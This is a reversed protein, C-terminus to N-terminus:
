RLGKESEAKFWNLIAPSSGSRAVVLEGQRVEVIWGEPRGGAEHRFSDGAYKVVQSSLVQSRITTRTSVGEIQFVISGKDWVYRGKNRESSQAVFWYRVETSHIGAVLKKVTVDLERVFTNQRNTSENDRDRSTNGKSISQKEAVDIVISGRVLTAPIDLPKKEAILKTAIPKHVQQRYLEYLRRNTKHLHELDIEKWRLEVTEPRLGQDIRQVSFGEASARIVRFRAARGDPSRIDAEIPLAVMAANAVAVCFTLLALATKM